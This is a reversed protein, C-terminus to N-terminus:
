SALVWAIDGPDVAVPVTLGAGRHMMVV